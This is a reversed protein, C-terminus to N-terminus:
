VIDGANIRDIKILLRACVKNNKVLKKTYIKKKINTTSANIIQKLAMSKKIQTKLVETYKHLLHQLESNLETRADDSGM